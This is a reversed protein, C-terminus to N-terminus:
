WCTFPFAGQPRTLTLILLCWSIILLTQAFRHRTTNGVVNNALFPLTPANIIIHQNKKAKVLWFILLPLPLVCAFWPWAFSIM